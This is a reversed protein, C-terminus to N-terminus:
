RKKGLLNRSKKSDEQTKERKMRIKTNKKIAKKMEKKSTAHRYVLIGAIFGILIGLIFIYYYEPEVIPIHVSKKPFYVDLNSLELAYEAFLLSSYPNENKLSHAYEFYSYGLIPFIDKAQEKLIVRKALKLKQDILEPVLEEKVSMSSIIVDIEAKAKSAKFLCVAYNEKKLEAYAKDLVARISNLELPLYLNFYDIREEVDSIKKLCGEKLAPEDLVFQRGELGFFKSWAVASQVREYAYAIDYTSNNSSNTNNLTDRAESLREKVVMYTELDPITELKKKDLWKNIANISTDAKDKTDLWEEEGLQEVIKEKFRVNTSFCYSAASYYKAEEFALSSLNLKDDSANYASSNINLLRTKLGATRECIASAVKNMRVSYAKSVGQDEHSPYLKGTVELVADEVSGVKIINIDEVDSLNTDNLFTLSPILVKVM